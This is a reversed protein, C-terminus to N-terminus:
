SQASAILCHMYAHLFTSRHRRRQWPQAVFTVACTQTGCSSSSGEQPRADATDTSQLSATWLIPIM